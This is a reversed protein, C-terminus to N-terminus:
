EIISVGKWFAIYGKIKIAAEKPAPYYWAADENRKGNINLTYYKANGKWPCESTTESPKFYKDVLSERPFYHNNEIIITENSEALLTDKWLAKM